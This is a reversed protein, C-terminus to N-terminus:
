QLANINESHDIICSFEVVIVTAYLGVLFKNKTEKKTANYALAISAGFLIWGHLAGKWAEDRM